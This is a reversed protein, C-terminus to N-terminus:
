LKEWDGREIGGQKLIRALLGTSIDQRHPNPITLKFNGKSMFQHKGGGFPGDFGLKRLYRILDGRKISGVAPM